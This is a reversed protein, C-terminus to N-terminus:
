ESRLSYEVASDPVARKSEVSFYAGTGTVILTYRYWQTDHYATKEEPLTDTLSLASYIDESNQADDPAFVAICEGCAIIFDDAATKKQKGASFDVCASVSTIEGSERTILGFLVQTGAQSQAFCLAKEGDFIMDTENTVTFNERKCLRRAFIEPNMTDQVTCASLLTLALLLPAIIIRRM